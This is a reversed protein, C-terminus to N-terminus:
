YAWAFPRRGAPALLTGASGDCFALCGALWGAGSCGYNRTCRSVCAGHQLVSRQDTALWGPAQGGPGGRGSGWRRGDGGQGGGWVCVDHVTVLQVHGGPPPWQLAGAWRGRGRGPGATGDGGGGGWQAAQAAAAAAAPAAAVAGGGAHGKGPRGRGLHGVGAGGRHAGGGNGQPDQGRGARGGGGGAPSNVCVCPHTRACLWDPVAVCRPSM